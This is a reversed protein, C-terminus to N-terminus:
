MKGCTGVPNFKIKLDSIQWPRGLRLEGFSTRWMVMRKEVAEGARYEGVGARVMNSPARRM